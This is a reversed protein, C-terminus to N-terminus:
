ISGVVAGSRNPDMEPTRLVDLPGRSPLTQGTQEARTSTPHLVTYVLLNSITQDQIVKLKSTYLLQFNDSSLLHAKMAGIVRFEYDHIVWDIVQYYLAALVALFMINQMEDDRQRDWEMSPSVNEERIRLKRLWLLATSYSTRMQVTPVPRFIWNQSCVTDWSEHLCGGAGGSINKSALQYFVFQQRECNFSIYFLMEVTGAKNELSNIGM